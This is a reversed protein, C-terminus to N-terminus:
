DSLIFKTKFIEIVTAVDMLISCETCVTDM